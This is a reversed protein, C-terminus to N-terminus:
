QATTATSFGHYPRRHGSTCCRSVVGLEREKNGERERGAVGAGNGCVAAGTQTHTQVGSSSTQVMCLTDEKDKRKRGEKVYIDM